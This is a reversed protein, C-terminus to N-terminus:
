VQPLSYLAQLDPMTGNLQKAELASQCLGVLLVVNLFLSRRWRFTGYFCSHTRSMYAAFENASTFVFWVSTHFCRCDWTLKLLTSSLFTTWILQDNKRFIQKIWGMTQIICAPVIKSCYCVLLSLQMCQVLSFEVPLLEILFVSILLFFTM